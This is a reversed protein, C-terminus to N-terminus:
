KLLVCENILKQIEDASCQSGGLGSGGSKGGKEFEQVSQCKKADEQQEPIAQQFATLQADM